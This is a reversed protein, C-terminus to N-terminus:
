VKPLAPTPVPVPNNSQTWKKDTNRMKPMKQRMRNKPRMTYFALRNKDNETGTGLKVYSDDYSRGLFDAEGEPTSDEQFTSTRSARKDNPFSNATSYEIEEWGVVTPVFPEEDYSPSVFTDENQMRLGELREKKSRRSKRPRFLKLSRKGKSTKSTEDVPTQPLADPDAFDDEDDSSKCFEPNRFPMNLNEELCESVLSNRISPSSLQEFVEDYINEVVPPSEPSKQKKTKSRKSTKPSAITQASLIGKAVILAKTKSVDRDNLCPPSNLSSSVFGSSTSDGSASPFMVPTKPTIRAKVNKNLFTGEDIPCGREPTPDSNPSFSVLTSNSTPSLVCAPPPPFLDFSNERVDPIIKKRGAPTVGTFNDNNEPVATSANASNFYSNVPLYNPNTIIKVGDRAKTSQDSASPLNSTQTSGYGETSYQSGLKIGTPKSVFTPKVIQSLKETRQNMPHAIGVVRNNNANHQPHLLSAEESGDQPLKFNEMQKTLNSDSDFFDDSWTTDESSVNGLGDNAINHVIQVENRHEYSSMYNSNTNTNKITSQEIASPQSHMSVAIPSTPEISVRPTKDSSRSKRSLFSNRATENGAENQPEAYGASANSKRKMCSTPCNRNQLRRNDRFKVYLLFSLIVVTFTVVLGLLLPFAVGASDLCMEASTNNSIADQADAPKMICRETHDNEGFLDQEFQKGESTAVAACKDGDWGCYPNGSQVCASKCEYFHCMDLPVSIICHQFTVLIVNSSKLIVLKRVRKVDDDKEQKNRVPSRVNVETENRSCEKPRFVESEESHILKRPQHLGMQNILVKLLKGDRTGIYLVTVNTVGGNGRVNTEVAVATFRVHSQTMLFLPFGSVSPVAAAMIPHSEVFQLTTSPAPEAPNHRCVAPHPNPMKSARKKWCWSSKSQEMFNGAFSTAIDYMTFACVASGTISNEPTTMTAFITMKGDFMMPETVDQIENFYFPRNGPFSCNLRAKFFSTWRGRLLTASGGVDKKCVQAVRSYVVKDIKDSAEVAEERFFVFIKEGYDLMGVFYPDNLFSHFTPSYETRLIPLYQSSGVVKGSSSRAFYGPSPMSAADSVPTRSVASDSRRIDVRTASFMYGDSYQYALSAVDDYPVKLKELVATDQYTGTFRTSNWGYERCSPRAANTGCLLLLDPAIQAVVRIYNQCTKISGTKQECKTDTRPNWTLVQESLILGHDNEPLQKDVVYISNRAAVLIKDSVLKVEQVDKLNFSRVNGSSGTFISFNSTDKLSLVLNPKLDQPFTHCNSSFTILLFQIVVGVQLNKMARSLQGLAM